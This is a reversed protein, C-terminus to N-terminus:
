PKYQGDIGFPTKERALVVLKTRLLEDSYQQSLLIGWQWGCCGARARPESFAYTERM